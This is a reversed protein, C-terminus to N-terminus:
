KVILRISSEHGGLNRFCVTSHELSRHRNCWDGVEPEIVRDVSLSVHIQGRGIQLTVLGGGDGVHCSKLVHVEEEDM